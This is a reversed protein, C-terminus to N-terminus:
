QDGVVFWVIAQQFAGLGGPGVIEHSAVGLMERSTKLPRRDDRWFLKDVQNKGEDGCKAVSLL